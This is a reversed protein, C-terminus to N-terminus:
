FEHALELGIVRGKTLPAFTGGLPINGLQSGLPLEGTFLVEDTINKGYLSISLGNDHVLTFNADLRETREVFGINNDTFPTESKQGYNINFNAHGLEGLRQNYILGINFSNDTLRPIELDFDVQSILGDGSIDFFIVNYEGDLYGLSATLALRDNIILKGDIEIGFIEANATNRVVQTIAINSNTTNVERQLDDIKTLFVAVNLSSRNASQYKWGLEFSEVEEDDFSELDEPNFSTNRLNFGGARFSRSWSTYLNSSDNLAYKAGIQPSLNDTTFTADGPNTAESFDFVCDGNTIRCETNTQVGPLISAIKVEKEEDSYRLGASLTLRDNVQYETQAFIGFTRQEQIGGGTLVTAPLNFNALADEFLIRTEAYAIDQEFYFVGTTINWKGFQGNFRLENSIQDQETTVAADFIRVFTADLDSLADNSFERYGLINTIQGNGFSVDINTELSFNHWESNNFTNENVSFDFSDRSFDQISDIDINAARAADAEISNAHSQAAPGDGSFEGYEYKATISTRDNPTWTLAPRVILTDSEGFDTQSGDALTNEFWGKDDNYYIAIKGALTDEILTGTTSGQAYYNAGTGRFGSEAAVKFKTSTEFSPNSTNVVVAGGTVNRGFLVGQPGRLVEISELDFADFVVGGNIGYYVGDVFVGVTPEISPISSNIGLGRIAFSAGGKTTGIEELSTNPISFSLSTLDRVKLAELQAEGFANIALPVDVINEVNKKKTATVVIEEIVDSSSQANANLTLTCGLLLLTKPKDSFYKVTSRTLTM